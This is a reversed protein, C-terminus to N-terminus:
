RRVYVWNCELRHVQAVAGPALTRYVLSLGTVAASTTQGGDSVLLVEGSSQDLASPLFRWRGGSALVRTCSVQSYAEFRATLERRYTGDSELRIIGAVICCEIQEGDGDMGDRVRAPLRAGNVGVLDYLGAVKQRDALMVQM